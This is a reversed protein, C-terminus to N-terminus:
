RAGMEAVHTSQMVRPTLCTHHKTRHIQYNTYRDDGASPIVCTMHIRRLIGRARLVDHLRNTPAEFRTQPSHTGVVCRPQWGHVQRLRQSLGDGVVVMPM